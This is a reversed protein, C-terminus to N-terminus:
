GVSEQGSGRIALEKRCGLHELVIGKWVKLNSM